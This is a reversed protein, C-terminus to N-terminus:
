RQFEKPFSEPLAHLAPLALIHRHDPVLVPKVLTIKWYDRNGIRALIPLRSKKKFLSDKIKFSENRKHDNKRWNEVSM